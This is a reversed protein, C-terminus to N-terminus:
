IKVVSDLVIFVVAAIRERAAEAEAKAGAELGARAM